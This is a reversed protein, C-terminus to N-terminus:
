DVRHMDAETTERLDDLSFADNMAEQLLRARMRASGHEIGGLAQKLIEQEDMHKNYREIDKPNKTKTIVYQTALEARKKAVILQAQQVVFVRSLASTMQDLENHSILKGKVMNSETCLAKVIANYVGSSMDIDSRDKLEDVLSMAEVIPELKEAVAEHKRKKRQAPTFYRDASSLSRRITVHCDEVEGAGEETRSRVTTYGVDYQQMPMHEHSDEDPGSNGFRTVVNVEATAGQPTGSAEPNQFQVNIEEIHAGYPGVRQQPSRVRLAHNHDAMISNQTENIHINSL